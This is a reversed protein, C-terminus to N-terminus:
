KSSEEVSIDCSLCERQSGEREDATDETGVSLFGPLLSQGIMHTSCILDTGEAGRYNEKYHGFRVCM